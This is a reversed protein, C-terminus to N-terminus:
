QVEPVPGVLTTDGPTVVPQAEFRPQIQENLREAEQQELRIQDIPRSDPTGDFQGRFGTDLFTFIFFVALFVISMAFALANVRNDYKLAMFFMAVLTAKIGAIILAVAVSGAGGGFHIADAREALALGVTVITLVVLAGFVKLLLGPSLIHHGHHGHDAPDHPSTHQTNEAM